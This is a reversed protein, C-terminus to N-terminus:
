NVSIFLRYIKSLQDQLFESDEICANIYNDCNFEMKYRIMFINLLYNVLIKIHKNKFDQNNFTYYGFKHMRKRFINEFVNDIKLLMHKPEYMAHKIVIGKFAYYDNKKLIMLIDKVMRKELMESQIRIKKSNELRLFKKYETESPVQNINQIPETHSKIERTFKYTLYFCLLISGFLLKKFTLM